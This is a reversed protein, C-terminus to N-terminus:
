GRSSRGCRVGDWGAGGRGAGGARGAARIWWLSLSLQIANYLKGQNISKSASAGTSGSGSAM